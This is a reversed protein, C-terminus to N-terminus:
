QAGFTIDFDVNVPVDSLLQERRDLSQDLVNVANTHVEYSLAETNVGLLMAIGHVDTGCVILVFRNRSRNQLSFGLLGKFLSSDSFQFKLTGAATLSRLEIANVLGAGIFCVNRAHQAWSFNFCGVSYVHDAAVPLVGLFEDFVSNGEEEALKELEVIITLVKGTRLLKVTPDYTHESGEQLVFVLCNSNSPRQTIM